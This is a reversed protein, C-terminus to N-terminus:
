NAKQIVAKFRLVGHAIRVDATRFADAYVARCSVLTWEGDLAFVQEHAAARMAEIIEKAERRGGHRTWAHLTLRHEIMLADAASRDESVARGLTVYPYAAGAPAEDYLRAPSGILAKVNGDAILRVVLADQFVAEPGSM